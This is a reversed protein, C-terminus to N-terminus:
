YDNIEVENRIKEMCDIWSMLENCYLPCFECCITQDLIDYIDEESKNETISKLMNNKYEELFKELKM